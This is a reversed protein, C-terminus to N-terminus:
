VHARGIQLVFLAAIAAATVAGPTLMADWVLASPPMVAADYAPAAEASSAAVRSLLAEAAPASRASASLGATLM